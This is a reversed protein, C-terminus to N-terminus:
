LPKPMPLIMVSFTINAWSITWPILCYLLHPLITILNSIVFVYSLIHQSKRITTMFFNPKKSIQSFIMPFKNAPTHYEIIRLPLLTTKESGSSTKFLTIWKRGGKKNNCSLNQRPREIDEIMIFMEFIECHIHSPRNNVM